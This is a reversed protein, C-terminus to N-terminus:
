YGIELIRKTYSDLKMAKCLFNFDDVRIANYEQIRKKIDDFKVINQFKSM